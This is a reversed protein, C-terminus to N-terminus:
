RFKGYAAELKEDAKLLAEKFSALYPTMDAYIMEFLAIEGEDINLPDLFIEELPLREVSGGKGFFVFILRNGKKKDSRWQILANSTKRFIRFDNDERYHRFKFYEDNGTEVIMGGKGSRKPRVWNQNVLLHKRLPHQIMASWSWDKELKEIVEKIM